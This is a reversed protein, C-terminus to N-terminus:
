QFLITQQTGVFRNRFQVGLQLQHNIAIRVPKYLFGWKIQRRMKSLNPELGLAFRRFVGVQSGDLNSPSGDILVEVKGMRSPVTGHWLGRGYEFDVGDIRM